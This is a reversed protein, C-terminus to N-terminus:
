KAAVAREKSREVEAPEVRGAEALADVDALDLLVRNGVKRYRIRREYILRRLWRETLWPREEVTQKLTRLRGSDLAVNM